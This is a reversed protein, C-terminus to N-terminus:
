GLPHLPLLLSTGGRGMRVVNTSPAVLAISPDDSDVRISAPAHTPVDYTSLRMAIRHGPALRYTTPWVAIEFPYFRGPELPLPREEVHYPSAESSRRRDLARHSARLYGQTILSTTGDPAVDSLQVIWDTDTASSSAVLHVQAPGALLAGEDLPASTWTLGTAAALQQDTPVYPSIAVTGYFDLPNSIGELPNTLYSRTTVAGAPRGTEIASGQLRMTTVDTDRPPWQTTQLIEGVAGQVYSRVAPRAPTRVGLLHHALFELTMATVDDGGEDSLTPAFPAGCGKHTCPDVYMRTEVGPREALERYMEVAGRVFGDRWGDLILTPVTIRDARYYPSRARYFRDDNPHALYDLAIPTGLLQQLKAGATMPLQTPGGPTLMGPGGQVAIYQADFFLNPIGGHTYADRYLDSLAVGPVIAALHPPQLEATLYQTIGVYSGGAMAVKGSSWRQTGFHEVLEYGDRAERPSFYNDDLNGESGGTGRTDVVVSVIGRTAFMAADPCSCLATRGYPTISLVVPFRGPARTTADSSPYTVTAGLLVGDSMEVAVDESVTDYTPEPM